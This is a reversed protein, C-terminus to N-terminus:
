PADVPPRANGASQDDPPAGSTTASRRKRFYKVALWRVPLALTGAGLTSVGLVSPAPLHPFEMGRAAHLACVGVLGVILLVFGVGGAKVVFNRADARKTLREQEARQLDAQLRRRDRAEEMQQFREARHSDLKLVRYVLARDTEPDAERDPRAADDEGGETSRQVVLSNLWSLLRLNHV